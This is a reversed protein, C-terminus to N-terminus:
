TGTGSTSKNILSVAAVAAITGVVVSTTTVAGVAATTAPAVGAPATATQAWLSSSSLALAAVTTFAFKNIKM